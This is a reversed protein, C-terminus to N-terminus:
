QSSHTPTEAKHLQPHINPERCRLLWRRAVEAYGGHILYNGNESLVQEKREQWIKPLAFWPLAPYRHHVAHLNNNLFMMRMFWGAEVVATRQQFDVAARHEIFSRILMISTAPYAVLLSYQWLPLAVSNLVMWVPILGVLHILWDLAIRRNGQVIAQFDSRWFGTWSIIPGLILRGLLTGNLTLIWQQIRSMKIWTQQTVYWSEPDELPDTLRQDKHHRLHLTQYRRYPFWVGVAPTALIENCLWSQTPHGHLAEHQLSSQFATALVTLILAPYGILTYAYLSVIWTSYCAFFLFVTYWEVPQQKQMNM